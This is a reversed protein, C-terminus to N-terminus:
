QRMLALKSAGGFFGDIKKEKILKCVEYYNKFDIMYSEDAIKKYSASESNGVAVLYIGKKIAYDHIDKAFASGGLLLLRKNLLDM